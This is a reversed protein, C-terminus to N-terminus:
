YIGIITEFVGGGGDGKTTFITKGLYSYRNKKTGGKDKNDSASEYNLPVLDTIQLREPGELFGKIKPFRSPQCNDCPMSFKVFSLFGPGYEKNKESELKNYDFLVPFPYTVRAVSTANFESWDPGDKITDKDGISLTGSKTSWVYSNEYPIKYLGASPFPKQPKALEAECGHPGKILDNYVYNKEDIIQKLINDVQAIDSGNVMTASVRGFANIQSQLESEYKEETISNNNLKSNLDDVVTKIEQLKNTVGKMEAIKNENDKLMQSYGNLLNFKVAAEKSVEPLIEPDAFYTKNMIDIYRELVVFLSNTVGEKSIIGNSHNLSDFHPQIGTFMAFMTGYYLRSKFGSDPESSFLDIVWSVLYGVALGAIAGVPGAFTGAFAFTTALAGGTVALATGVAAGIAPMTSKVLETITDAEFEELDKPSMSVIGDTAKSLIKSSDYEWGPHPGPICYDLQYITPILGYANTEGTENIKYPKGDTTSMLEKNQLSLKDSYTRQEDILAQTLDTRINFNPNAELFSNTLFIKPFDKQTQNQFNNQAFPTLYPTGDSGDTTMEAFGKEILDTTFRNLLADLVAGIADNLDEAKLLNNNPYGVTNTALDAIMKGPTVYQWTGTCIQYRYPGTPSNAREERGARDESRTLNKPESCREDGLYGGAQMLANNINEATSNDTGRLRNSLENSAIIEFGFPNNAPVQTLYRWAEWGGQSFDSQFSATSFQPNNKQMIEDLSYRANDAFKRQFGIAQNKLWAKGFPYQSPDGIEAGFNLIENKAIDNFFSKPDQVFAPKGEFGSNIWAVTSMTIKQLLMKVILRGISKLCSDNTDISQVSKETNKTNTLIKNLKGETADPLSVSVSNFKSAAQSAKEKLESNLSEALEAGTNEALQAEISSGNFLGSISDNIKDKCLPLQLIAPALGSAYMGLSSNNYPDFTQAHVRKSAYFLPSIIFSFILASSILNTFKKNM